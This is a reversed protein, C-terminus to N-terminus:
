CLGILGRRAASIWSRVVVGSRDFASHGDGVDFTRPPQHIERRSEKERKRAFPNEHFNPVLSAVFTPSLSGGVEPPQSGIPESRM